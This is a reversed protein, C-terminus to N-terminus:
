RATGKRIDLNPGLCGILITQSIEKKFVAPIETSVPTFSKDVLYGQVWRFCIHVSKLANHHIGTIIIMAVPM